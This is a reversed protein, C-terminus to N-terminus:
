FSAFSNGNLFKPSNYFVFDAMDNFTNKDAVAFQVFDELFAANAEKFNGKV